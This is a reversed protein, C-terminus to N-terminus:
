AFIEEGYTQASLYEREERTLASIFRELKQMIMKACGECFGEEVADIAVYEGCGACRVARGVDESACLPCVGFVERCPHGFHELWEGYIQACREFAAGCDGCLYM